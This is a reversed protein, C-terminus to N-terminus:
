TRGSVPLVGGTSAENQPSALWCLTHALNTPTPWASHDADPMAERNARTNIISPAVANVLVGEAAVETALAVTLAVVAAKSAAYPAMGAGSRPELAPRAAVNVIRGEGGSARIAKVAERCCLFCTEVNMTMLRKLESLGTESVASMGFGGACHVSAWLSPLAQYFASVAAEDSLNVGTTVRVREHGSHPWDSRIEARFSPIHCTAGAALLVRVVETGLGGTGGTVVVHKNRFNM